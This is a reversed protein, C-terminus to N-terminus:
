KFLAKLRGWTVPAAATISDPCVVVSDAM